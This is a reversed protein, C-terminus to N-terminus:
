EDGPSAAAGSTIAASLVSRLEGGRRVAVAGLMVMNADYRSLGVERRLYRYGDREVPDLNDFSFRVRGKM